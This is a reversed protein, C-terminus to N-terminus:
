INEKLEVSINKIGSIGSIDATVEFDSEKGPTLASSTELEREITGIIDSSENKLYIVLLGRIARNGTNRIKGEVVLVTNDSFATAKLGHVVYEAPAAAFPPPIEEAQVLASPFVISFLIVLFRTLKIFTSSAPTKMMM